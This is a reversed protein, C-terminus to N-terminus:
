AKPSSKNEHVVDVIAKNHISGLHFSPPKAEHYPTEEIQNTLKPFKKLSLVFILSEM